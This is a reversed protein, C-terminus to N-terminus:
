QICPGESMAHTELKPIELAGPLRAKQKHQAQEPHTVQRLRDYAGTRLAGHLGPFKPLPGSVNHADLLRVAM